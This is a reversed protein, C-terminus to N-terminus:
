AEVITFTAALFAPSTACLEAIAARAEAETEFDNPYGLEWLAREVDSAFPSGGPSAPMMALTKMQLEISTNARCGQRVDFDYSLSFPGAMPWGQGVPGNSETEPPHRRASEM